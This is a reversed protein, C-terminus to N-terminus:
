ATQAQQVFVRHVGHRDDAGVFPEPLRLPSVDRDNFALLFKRSRRQGLKRRDVGLVANTQEGRM